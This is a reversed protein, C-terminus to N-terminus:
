AEYVVEGGVMTLLAEGDRCEEPTAALPDVSLAALDAPAGPVLRGREPAVAVAAAGTTYLELAAQAGVAQGPGVPEDSGAITRRRLQWFAWLPALPVGPGDSGAGVTVGAELWARIPHAEGIREAGFREVLGAGFSWQLPPQTAVLAGLERTRRMQAPTPWLYAHILTFPLGAIPGAAEFADLVLEIAATGVCHVGLGMRATAAWAAWTRLGETSTTQNGRYGDTGTDAEGASAGSVGPTPWDEDLLATGLSGGGDLFLKAPGLRLVDGGRLADLDGFAALVTQPHGEGDGLPMATTRITLEGAEALARYADLEGPALAPDVVSTIGVAHFVPQIERLWRRRDAEAVAPMAREVLEVAPREILFGTPEGLADREVVGGPPDQTAAGIGAAQLATTNVLGDHSRRDLLLPRGGTAAELEAHTPFRGEALDRADIDASGELWARGPNAAAFAAIRRTIEAISTVGTLSVRDRERGWWLMHVHSDILGPVVTGPLARTATGAPVAAAVDAPTGTAAVVGDEIAVAQVRPQERDLTLVDGTIILASM